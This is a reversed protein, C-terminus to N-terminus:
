GSSDGPTGRFDGYWYGYWNDYGPSSHYGFFTDQEPNDGVQPDNTPPLSLYTAPLGSQAPCFGAPDGNSRAWRASSCTPPASDFGWLNRPPKVPIRV